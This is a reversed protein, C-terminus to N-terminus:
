VFIVISGRFFTGAPYTKERGNITLTKQGGWIHVECSEGTATSVTGLVSTKSPLSLTAFGLDNKMTVESNVAFEITIICMNGIRYANTVSGETVWEHYTIDM